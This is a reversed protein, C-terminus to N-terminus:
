GVFASSILSFGTVVADERTNSEESVVWTLIVTLIGIGAIGWRFLFEAGLILNSLRNGHVPPYYFEKYASYLIVALIVGTVTWRFWRMKTFGWFIRLFSERVAAVILTIEVADLWWYLADYFHHSIASAVLYACGSLVEWAVYFVFWPLQKRVSQRHLVILLWSSILLSLILLLSDM